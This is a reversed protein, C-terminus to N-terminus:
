SEPDLIRKVNAVSREVIEGVLRGALYRLPPPFRLSPGCEM